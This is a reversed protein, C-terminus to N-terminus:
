WIRVREAPPLYLKDGPKVGFAKYWEDFNRVIGNIRYQAPSHPDVVLYQRATEDRIAQRWVQAFAMFFRQDGTLGDIVPAPKGGLSLKYARYAVSLGGLDGINEGMTLQGNVCAKGGPSKEDFPCYADYQKGLRATLAEFAARDKDTWWDRMNGKGDYAAGQDDFGHGMEHGIVAGIAGYNVAPDAHLNFFPPQLIAAPFVIENYTPNYYANITEPLMGWESRDVEQGLRAAEFRSEWDQAAIVNALPTAGSLTLGAYDKYKAPMGIKPTFADLKAQAEKRTDPGMWKLDVLNAAMAKRLNAVLQDMAVKNEPPFYREAYLKGLQEGVQGEVARIARKWRPLQVKQGALVTGYFAFRADDIPKPLVGAYSSFFQTDLWAKWVDVPESRVLEALAPVGGGLKAAMEPTYKAAALKEASPPMQAVVAAQAKDLGMETLMTDVPLGPLAKAFDARSLKTYTLSPNRSLARDWHALAMKKELAYVADATKAPDAYGAQGLAFRLWEMYKQRVVLNRPNDVLYFDRDPLGLSGTGLYLIYHDSDKEDATVSFSIPSALGPQAFLKALDDPTKAAAIKDLWPKAPALGAADIAATDLYASYAAAIKGEPTAPDPKKAVLEDLIGKLREQSLDDLVNFSGYRTKDAPMVFANQWKGNVYANFDDGPKVSKDVYQLQIGAGPFDRSMLPATMPAPPTATASAAPAATPQAHLAPAFLSLASAAVLFATQRPM